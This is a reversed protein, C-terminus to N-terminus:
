ARECRVAVTSPESTPSSSGDPRSAQVRSGAAVSRKLSCGVVTCVPRMSHAVALMPGTAPSAIPEAAVPVEISAIEMPSTASTRHGGDPEDDGSM